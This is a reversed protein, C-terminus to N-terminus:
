HMAAHGPSQFKRTLVKRPPSVFSGVRHGTRNGLIGAADPRQPTLDQRTLDQRMLDQRMLAQRTLDQLALEQQMLEPGGVSMFRLNGTCNEMLQLHCPSLSLQLKACAHM